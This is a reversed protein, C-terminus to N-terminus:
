FIKSYPKALVVNITARIPQFYEGAYEIKPSCNTGPKIAFDLHLDLGHFLDWCRGSAPVPPLENLLEFSLQKLDWLRFMSSRQHRWWNTPVPNTWDHSKLGNRCCLSPQISVSEYLLGKHIVPLCVGYTEIYTNDFTIYPDDLNVWYGMRTTAWGMTKYRM